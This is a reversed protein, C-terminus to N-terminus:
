RQGDDYYSEPRAYLEVFSCSVCRHANLLHGKGVVKQRETDSNYSVWKFASLRGAEM